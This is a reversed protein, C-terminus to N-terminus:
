TGATAITAPAAKERKADSEGSDATGGSGTPHGETYTYIFENGAEDIEDIMKDVRGLLFQYLLLVPIAITLGAATTVLAEYIGTALVAPKATGGSLSTKQFADIMGYVTGLLGLLPSVTAIISLPRVSRKMKAAERSGTDEIAKEVAEPGLRARRIGARFIHGVAGGAEDCYAIAQKGSPDANWAKLLRDIFGPPLIRDKQLAVFREIGLAMALISALGLPFMIYGGKKLLTLMTEQEVGADDSVDEALATATFSSLALTMVAMVGITRWRNTKM